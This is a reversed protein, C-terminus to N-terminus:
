EEETALGDLELCGPPENATDNNNDGENTGTECFDTQDAFASGAVTSTFAAGGVVFTCNAADFSYSQNLNGLASAVDGLEQVIQDRYMVMGSILGIVVIVTFLILETSAVFGTEDNWLRKLLSM